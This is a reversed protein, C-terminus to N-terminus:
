KHGFTYGISAGFRFLNDSNFESNNIVRYYNLEPRVFFKRWIYRRVDFGLHVAFHTSNVHLICIGGNGYCGNVDNYFITTQGGVGALFDLKTKSDITAAYVGNVDYIIPRYPQYGDYEAKHYRYSFEAQFGFHDPRVYELSAGPYVGGREEPPPFAISANNPKSAFLTSGGVAFNVEQALASSALAFFIWVFALLFFRRL